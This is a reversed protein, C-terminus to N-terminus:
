KPDVSILTRLATSILALKKEKIKERLANGFINKQISEKEKFINRIVKNKV